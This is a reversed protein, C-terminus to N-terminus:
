RPTFHTRAQAVSERVQAVAVDAGKALDTWAEGAASQLLTLQYRLEERRTRVLDLAKGYRERAEERAEKAQLEWKALDANLDDLNSKLAEIYQERTKKM